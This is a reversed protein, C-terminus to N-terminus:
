LVQAVSKNGIYIFAMAMLGFSIIAIIKTTTPLTMNMIPFYGALIFGGLLGGIHGTIGIGPVMFSYM